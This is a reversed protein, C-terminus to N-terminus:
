TCAFIKNKLGKSGLKARPKSWQASLGHAPTKAPLEWITARNMILAAERPGLLGADLLNLILAHHASEAAEAAATLNEFSADSM